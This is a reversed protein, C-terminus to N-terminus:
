SLAERITWTRLGQANVGPRPKIWLLLPTTSDRNPPTPSNLAVAFAYRKRLQQLTSWVQGVNVNYDQLILENNRFLVTVAQGKVAQKIATELQRWKAKRNRQLDAQTPHQQYAVRAHANKPGLFRNYNPKQQLFFDCLADVLSRYRGSVAPKTGPLVNVFIAFALTHANATYLYGSLGIVGTMTGTKARILGQQTPKRFRKQLTGDQGAVPLAAIYEYALPFREHLFRLLGVTQQPTLQDYRSLGSGDTLVANQMNIGTQQQIFNKLVVQAQQWDVPAGHLKAATHLYLSDAYLNDSPKLTDAMLQAIPKSDHSALLLTGPPANGLLVQGDLGIQLDTLQSKISEQTYRLPNTIAIRQQVAWQGVGVCGRVTLRNDEDMSFGIGCGKTQPKTEVQNNILLNASHDSIEVLAPKGAQHAPNITITLRNEDLVVPAIPAGYGYKFDQVVWGPAHSAVFRHNSVLVVDGQIRKVGWESLKLLLDSLHDQMFSPDGPLHLFVSGKLTGNELLTANTSLQTKFRYDPGLVMLAAADSFLKMNSAPIFLRTANRQYLNEGTNLDIISVGMNISPDVQNILHDVTRKLTTAHASLCVIGFLLAPLIRKM